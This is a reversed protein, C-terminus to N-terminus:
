LGVSRSHDKDKYLFKLLLAKFIPFLLTVLIFFGTSRAPDTGDVGLFIQGFSDVLYHSIMGPVVSGSRLTLLGWAIGFSFAMIVGPIVEPLATNVINSFHFLAFLTSSLLVSIRGSFVERSKSQVVGRFALEEWIGPVLALLFYGWGIVDPDPQIDPMAFVSSLDGVFIGMGLSITTALVCFVLFSLVGLLVFRPDFKLMKTVWSRWCGSGLILPLVFLVVCAAMVMRIFVVVSLIVVLSWGMEALKNSISFISDIKLFFSFAIVSLIGRLIFAVKGFGTFM